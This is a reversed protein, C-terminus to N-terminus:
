ALAPGFMSARAKAPPPENVLLGEEPKLKAPAPAPARLTTSEVTAAPMEPTAPPTVSVELAVAAVILASFVAPMVASAPAAAALRRIAALPPAAMLTPAAAAYLSIVPLTEAVIAFEAVIVAGPPRDSVAISLAVIWAKVTPMAAAM